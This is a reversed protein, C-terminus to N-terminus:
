PSRICSRFVHRCHQSRELNRTALGTLKTRIKPSSVCIKWLRNSIRGSSLNLMNKLAFRCTSEPILYSVDNILVRLKMAYERYRQFLQSSLTKSESISQSTQTCNFTIWSIVLVEATAYKAQISPFHFSCFYVPQVRYKMGLDQGCHELGSFNCCM